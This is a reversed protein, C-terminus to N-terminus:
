EQGHRQAPRKWGKQDEAMLRVLLRGVMWAALLAVAAGLLAKAVGFVLGAVALGIGLLFLLAYLAAAIFVTAMAGLASLYLFVKGWFRLRGDPSLTHELSRIYHVLCLVARVLVPAHLLLHPPPSRHGFAYPADGDDRSFVRRLSKM